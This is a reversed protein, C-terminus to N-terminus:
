VNVASYALPSVTERMGLLGVGRPRCLRRLREPTFAKKVGRGLSKIDEGLRRMTACGALSLVLL